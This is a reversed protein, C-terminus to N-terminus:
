PGLQRDDRTIPWVSGVSEPLDNRNLIEAFDEGSWGDLSHVASDQITFRVFSPVSTEAEGILARQGSGLCGLSVM